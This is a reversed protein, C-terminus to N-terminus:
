CNRYALAASNGTSAADVYTKVANQTPFLVDSTGLATATSKNAINEKTTGLLTEEATARATEAALNNKISDDANIRNTVEASLNTSLTNESNTARTIETALNNKISDDANIRNTIESALATSNGTSAADVYTKVANQTPFLLMVRIGLTTAHQNTLLIKKPLEWCLKKRQLEQQKLLWTIKLAIMQM